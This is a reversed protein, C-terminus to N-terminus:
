LLRFYVLVLIILDLFGGFAFELNQAVISHTRDNRMRIWLKLTGRRLKTGGEVRAEEASGDQVLVLLRVEAGRPGRCHGCMCFGAGEIKLDHDTSVGSGWGDTNDRSSACTM